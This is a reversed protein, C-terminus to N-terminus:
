PRSYYGTPTDIKIVQPHTDFYKAAQEPTISIASIARATGNPFTIAKMTKAQPQEPLTMPALNPVKNKPIVYEPLVGTRKVLEIESEVFAAWEAM